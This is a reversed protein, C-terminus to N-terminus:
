TDSRRVHESKRHNKPKTVPKYGSFAAQPVAFSRVWFNYQLAAFLKGQYWCLHLKKTAISIDHCILNQCAGDSGKCDRGRQLGEAAPTQAQNAVALYAKEGSFWRV